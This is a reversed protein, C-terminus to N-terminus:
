SADLVKSMERNAEVTASIIARRVNAKPSEGAGGFEEDYQAEDLPIEFAGNVFRMKRAIEPGAMAALKRELVDAGAQVAEVFLGLTDEDSRGLAVTAIFDDNFQFLDV